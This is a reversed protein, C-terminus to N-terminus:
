RNQLASPIAFCNYPPCSVASRAAILYITSQYIQTTMAIAPFFDGLNPFKAIAENRQRKM